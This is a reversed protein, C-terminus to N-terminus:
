TPQAQNDAQYTVGTTYYLDSYAEVVLWQTMPYLNEMFYHGTADTTVLVAGRDMVSNERKRMVVPFNSLGPEGADRIGNRNLDNFVYGDLQAWWGNLPLVGLDVVEGNAVTVNALNLIYDQPEDWWTLTYNGNPVNPITFAGNANGQGIWIATDGAGLDSLSIWPSDIPKDIRSGTMPEGGIVGGKAPVYTKFADVVGKIQGSGGLNPTHENVFGFIIAPFPEGAVVFETDYGTAGEMVWADWDHNGELTTTQIWNTGDPAVASLAYRNPGLHPIVLDGNADSVCEGGTGAIPIPLMDADLSGPPIVHTVPDEGQYVTCLPNGYIDTTVEGIYDAIHGVFGALGHEAPVDPAGNTPSIDEFVFARITADPLPFPQLEVTLPGNLPVTFHAGDLKYGDALVSILYRGAPLNTLPFDSQDGQTYIPSNSATGAISVWDCSAPYGSFAPTCEAPPAGTTSNPRQTTTGTNDVNIIYKFSTIADGQVVGARPETRASIVNLTLTTTQALPAAGPAQDPAAQVAAATAPLQVLLLALTTLWRWHWGFPRRRTRAGPQRGRYKNM